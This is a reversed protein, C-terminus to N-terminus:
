FGAGLLQVKFFRPQFEALFSIRVASMVGECTRDYRKIEWCKCTKPRNDINPKGTTPKRSPALGFPDVWGIPNPAYVFLNTGGNLGIPDPSVFRGVAM